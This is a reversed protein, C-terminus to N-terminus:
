FKGMKLTVGASFGRLFDPNAILDTTNNYKLNINNTYRYYGGIALRFFKLVNIELEVGPELIFFSKSDQKNNGSGFLVFTDDSKSTYSIGGAGMVIPISIHIPYKPLLIPEILLGGYGGSFSGDLQLRNNFVKDGILANGALGIALMHGAIFCGRAGLVMGPNSGIDSYRAVIGGYGGVTKDGNFLTKIQSNEKGSPEDQARLQLSAVGLFLLLLSIKITNM